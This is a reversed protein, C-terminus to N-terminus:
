RLRQRGCEGNCVCSILSARSRSLPVLHLMFFEFLELFSIIQFCVYESACMCLLSASRKLTEHSYHSWRRHQLCCVQTCGPLWTHFYCCTVCFFAAFSHLLLSSFVFRCFSNLFSASFTVLHLTVRGMLVKFRYFPMSCHRPACRQCVSPSKLVLLSELYFCVSLM